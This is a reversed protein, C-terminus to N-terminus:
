GLQLLSKRVTKGNGGYAGIARKVHRLQRLRSQVDAQQAQLMLILEGYLTELDHPETGVGARVETAHRVIAAVVANAQESLQEVRAFDGERGAALQGELLRRLGAVLEEREQTSSAQRDYAM